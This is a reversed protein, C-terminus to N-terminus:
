SRPDGPAPHDTATPGASSSDAADGGDGGGGDSSLHALLEEMSGFTMTEVGEEDADDVELDEVALDDDLQARIISDPFQRPAEFSLLTADAFVVISTLALDDRLDAAEAIPEDGVAEEIEAAIQEVVSRWDEPALSLLRAVRDALEAPEFPGREATEPDVNVMADSGTAAVRALGYVFTDEIAPSLLLGRRALEDALADLSTTAM